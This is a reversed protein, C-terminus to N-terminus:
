WKVICHAEDIALAVIRGVFRADLFLSRWKTTGVFAEPSGFVHTVRGDLIDAQFDVADGSVCVAKVGKSVLKTVQDHMLSLLPSIVVVVPMMPESRGSRLLREACFPLVQFVLSKGFGTPVSMFVNDGSLLNQVATLQEPKICEYGLVRLGHEIASHLLSPDATIADKWYSLLAM